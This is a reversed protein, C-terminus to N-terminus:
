HRVGNDFNIELQKARDGLKSHHRLTSIKQKVTEYDMFPEISDKRLSDYRGIDSSHGTSSLLELVEVLGEDSAIHKEILPRPGDKDGSQLWAYLIAAPDPYSTMDKVTMTGFRHLMLETIQDLEEDKFLWEDTPKPRDGHRGHAFTEHRFLSTLWGIAVGDHFMATVVATRPTPKLEALLLPILRQARDWLSGVWHLDFPLLRYADDMAQSFAVLFNECQTPTLVEYAGGKIRELLLDAKTLSGAAHEGQFKLLVAGAQDASAEAATWMTSFDDQTLAHSPGAMAFYLRYHDPSALRKMRIAKDCELETVPGFIDFWKGENSYDIEVGPLSDAFIRRYSLDSFHNKTVTKHLTALEEAKEESEIRSIGLLVVSATACYEEIWRYLAPNGDKILQLWVLDALDAGSEHLPPWFFRVADLARVVSRPTLLQRGGEYDIVDRLRSREDENKTSGVRQLEDSFWQRLQFTEPKPVMVTLQVIKELYSQGSEVGAAQEISHALIKSDYCLLYIVNPLDVVSRVLRLIEIAERPELRDVDDITIVFRHGLERLSKALEDKLEILQPPDAEENFVEGVAVLGQGAIALPSLGSAEGVFEIVGGMRSLGSMFKRFTEATMKAKLATEDTAENANQAIQDIQQLLEGFLSTILGDRNGILWPRFNIVTPKQAIPLKGLEDEILFLLSSKGSGWAGELGVVLGNESAQDVLSTTIRKAIDRFGLKDEDSSNLARDGTISNSKEM